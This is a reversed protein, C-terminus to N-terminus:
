GTIANLSYHILEKGGVPYHDPVARRVEMGHVGKPKGRRTSNEDKYYVIIRRRTGTDIRLRPCGDIM